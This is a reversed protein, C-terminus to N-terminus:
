QRKDADSPLEDEIEEINSEIREGIMDITKM